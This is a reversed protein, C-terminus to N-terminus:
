SCLFFFWLCSTLNKSTCCSPLLFPSFPSGKPNFVLTALDQLRFLALDKDEVSEMPGAGVSPSWWEMTCSSSEAGLQVDWSAESAQWTLAAKHWQIVAEKRTAGNGTEIGCLISVVGTRESEDGDADEEESESSSSSNPLGTLFGAIGSNKPLIKELLGALGDSGQLAGAGNVHKFLVGIIHIGKPLQVGLEAAETDWDPLEVDLGAYQVTGALHVWRLLGTIRPERSSSSSSSPFIGTV